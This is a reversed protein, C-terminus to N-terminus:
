AASGAAVLFENPIELGQAGQYAALAQEIELWTEERENPSLPSMMERLTPYAEQLYERAEAASKLRLTLSLAHLEVEEFGAAELKGELVGPAGLSRGSLREPEPMDEGLHQRIISSALSSEPSGGEAYLVLSARGGPKLVRLMEKLGRDPNPFFMLGFHCIVADFSSNPLDLNEGDMVQTELNRLGAERASSQAYALLDEALDTALVYGSSGVREAALLSQDGDGAAVDLVRSGPGIRALDLMLDTAPAYQERMFPAWRHWREAAENWQERVREKFSRSDSPENRGM